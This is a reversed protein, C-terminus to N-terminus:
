YEYRTALSCITTASPGYQDEPLIAEDEYDIDDESSLDTEQHEQYESTGFTIIGDWKEVGHANAKTRNETIIRIRETITRLNRKAFTVVQVEVKNSARHLLDRWYIKLLRRFNREFCGAGLLSFGDECLAKFGEDTLLLDILDGMSESPASFTTNTSMTRLSFVDSVSSSLVKIM